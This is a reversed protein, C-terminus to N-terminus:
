FSHFNAYLSSEQPYIQRKVKEVKHTIKKKRNLPPRSPVNIVNIRM